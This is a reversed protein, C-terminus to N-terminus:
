WIVGDFGDSPPPRLPFTLEVDMVEVDQDGKAANCRQCLVQLNTMETMGGKSAPVIHDFTTKNPTLRKRCGACRGGFGRLLAEKMWKPPKEGKHTDIGFRELIDTRGVRFGEGMVDIASGCWYCRPRWSGDKIAYRVEQIERRSFGLAAYDTALSPGYVDAPQLPVEMGRAESYACGMCQPVLVWLNVATMHNHGRRARRIAECVQQQKRPQHDAEHRPAQWVYEQWLRDM